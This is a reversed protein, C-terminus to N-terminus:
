PAVESLAALTQEMPLGMVATWSGHVEAVFGGSRGQIAYAGAKDDGEGSALHRGIEAETLARFRVRTTVEFTRADAGRRVCVGTTVHHEAGSLERLMRAGDDRSSPKGYVKDGVWVVTDAAVVVVDDPAPSAKTQALRLAYAVPPEGPRRTEDVQPPHVQVSWGADELLQRRRPSGSALWIPSM